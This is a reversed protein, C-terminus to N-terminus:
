EVALGGEPLLARRHREHATVWLRPGVFHLTLVGATVVGLIAAVPWFAAAREPRLPEPKWLRL